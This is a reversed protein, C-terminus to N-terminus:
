VDHFFKTAFKCFDVIVDKKLAFEKRDGLYFDKSDKTIKGGKALEDYSICKIHNRSVIIFYCEKYPYEDFSEGHRNFASKDFYEDSRFKVEIFYVKNNENDQIVFDPMRKINKAASSNDNRLLKMVGPVTNEMGYRFVSFGLILFLQEILNEAIRGKILDYSFYTSKKIDIDEQWCELCKPKDDKTPKGCECVGM